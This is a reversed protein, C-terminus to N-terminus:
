LDKGVLIPIPVIIIQIVVPRIAATVQREVEWVMGFVCCSFISEVLRLFVNVRGNGLQEIGSVHDM